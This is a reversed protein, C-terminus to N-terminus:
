DIARYTRRGDLNDAELVDTACAPIQERRTYEDLRGDIGEVEGPEVPPLWAVPHDGTRIRDAAVDRADILRDWDATWAELARQGDDNGTSATRMAAVMDRLIASEEGIRDALPADAIAADLPGLAILETRASDCAREVTARAAGIPEGSRGLAIGGVIAALVGVFGVGLVVLAIRNSRTAGPDIADVEDPSSM